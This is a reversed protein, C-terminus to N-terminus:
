SKGTKAKERALKKIRREAEDPVSYRDYASM